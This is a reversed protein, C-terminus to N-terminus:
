GPGARLEGLALQLADLRAQVQADPNALGISLAPHPGLASVCADVAAALSARGSLYEIVRADMTRTSESPAQASRESPM